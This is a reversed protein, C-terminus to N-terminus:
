SVNAVSSALPHSYSYTFHIKQRCIGKTFFGRLTRILEPVFPDEIGLMFAQADGPKM